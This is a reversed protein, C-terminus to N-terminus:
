ENFNNCNLKRMSDLINNMENNVLDAHAGQFNNPDLDWQINTFRQSIDEFMSKLEDCNLTGWKRGKLHNERIRLIIEQVENYTLDNM